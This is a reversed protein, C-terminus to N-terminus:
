HGGPGGPATTSQSGAQTPQNNPQTSQPGAQTSQHNPQTAHPGAQTPQNNPQTPQPGPGNGDGPTCTRTPDPGPGPGYGSGPTPTGTTWPNGDQGDGTPTCTPCDGAGKGPGYGSGPTPTGTTWPNGSGTGPAMQTGQGAPTTTKQSDQRHLQDRQRLQDRLKVPDVLGGEVWQLREQLMQRTQVLVAEAIPSGLAQVQQLAQQQAQLRIRVEELARVAQNDPLSVALRIAQEVQNQYRVQVAPPPVSGTQVMTRIEEARHNSFELALQYEADVGTTLGLRIDESMLKLGYLVQDPLSNQAAAITAGGGGIVLSVILMATAFTSIMPSHEKRRILFISQLAHMWVNHRWKGLPTVAKSMEDAQQIFAAKGKRANEQNRASVTGLAALKRILKPDLESKSNM